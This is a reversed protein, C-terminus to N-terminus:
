GIDTSNSFPCSRLNSSQFLLILAKGSSKLHWRQHLSLPSRGVAMGTDFTLDSSMSDSTFSNTFKKRKKSIFFKRYLEGRLVVDNAWGLDQLSLVNDDGRPVHDLQVEGVGVHPFSPVIFRTKGSKFFDIEELEM